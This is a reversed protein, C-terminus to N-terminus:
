WSASGSRWPRLVTWTPRACSSRRPSSSAARSRAAATSSAQADTVEFGAVQISPERLGAAAAFRRIAAEDTAVKARVAILDNGAAVFRLPWLALDAKVDREALGKVAVTREGLRFERFGQGVLWGAAALGLAVLLGAVAIGAAGLATGSRAEAM